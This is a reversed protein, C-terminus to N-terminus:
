GLVDNQANARYVWVQGLRCRFGGSGAIGPGSVRVRMWWWLDPGGGGNFEGSDDWDPSPGADATLPTGDAGGLNFTSANIINQTWGATANSLDFRYGNDPDLNDNNYWGPLPANFLDFDSPGLVSTSSGFQPTTNAFEDVSATAFEIDIQGNDTAGKYWLGVAYGTGQPGLNGLPFPFWDDEVTTELSQGGFPSGADAVMQWSGDRWDVGNGGPYQSNRTLAEFDFGSYRLPRAQLYSGPTPVVAELIQIRRQLDGVVLPLNTAEAENRATM